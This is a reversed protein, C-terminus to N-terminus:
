WHELRYSFVAGPRNPQMLLSLQQEAWEDVLRMRTDRAIAEPPEERAYDLWESDREARIRFIVHWQEQGGRTSTEISM